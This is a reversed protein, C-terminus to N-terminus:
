LKKEVLYTVRIKKLIYGVGIGAYAYLISYLLSDLPSM